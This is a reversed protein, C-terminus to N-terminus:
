DEKKLEAYAIVSLYPHKKIYGLLEEERDSVKQLVEKFTQAKERSIFLADGAIEKLFRELFEDLTKASKAIGAVRKSIISYKKKRVEEPIAGWDILSDVAQLLRGALVEVSTNDPM